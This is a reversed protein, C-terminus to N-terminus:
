LYFEAEKELNTVSNEGSIVHNEDNLGHWFGLQYM